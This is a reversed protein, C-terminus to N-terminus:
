QLSKHNKKLNETLDNDVLYYTYKIKDNLYMM